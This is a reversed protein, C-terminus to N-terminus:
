GVPCHAVFVSISPLVTTSFGFAGANMAERFLATLQQLEKENAGREKSESGLVYQRLPSLPVMSAVNVGLGSAAIAILYEWMSEWSWQVGKQLVDFSM